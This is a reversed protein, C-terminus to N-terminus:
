GLGAIFTIGMSTIWTFIALGIMTAHWAGGRKLVMGVVIAVILTSVLAPFWGISGGFILSFFLIPAGLLGCSWVTIDMVLKYTDQHHSIDQSGRQYSSM